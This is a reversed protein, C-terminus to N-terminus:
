RLVDDLAMIVPYFSRSTEELLQYCMRMDEELVDQKVLFDM